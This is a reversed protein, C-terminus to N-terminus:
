LDTPEQGTNTQSESEHARALRTVFPELNKVVSMIADEEDFLKIHIIEEMLPVLFRSVTVQIHLQSITKKQLKNIAHYQMLINNSIPGILM